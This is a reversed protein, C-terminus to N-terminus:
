PVNAVIRDDLFTVEIYLKNLFYGRSTTNYTLTSKPPMENDFLEWTEEM